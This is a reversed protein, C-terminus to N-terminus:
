TFTKRFPRIGGVGLHFHILHTICLARERRLNRDFTPREVAAVTKTRGASENVAFVKELPPKGEFIAMAQARLEPEARFVAAVPFNPMYICAFM